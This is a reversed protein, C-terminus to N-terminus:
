RESVVTRYQVDFCLLYQFRLETCICRIVTFLRWNSELKQNLWGFSQKGFREFVANGLNVAVTWSAVSLIIGIEWFSKAQSSWEIWELERFSLLVGDVMRDHGLTNRARAHFFTHEMVSRDFDKRRKNTAFTIAAIAAATNDHIPSTFRCRIAAEELLACESEM